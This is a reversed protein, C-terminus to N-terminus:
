LWHPQIQIWDRPTDLIFEEGSVNLRPFAVLASTSLLAAVYSFTSSSAVIKNAGTMLVMVEAPDFEPNDDIVLFNKFKSLDIFEHIKSNDNSFFVICDKEVSVDLAELARDYYERTLVGHLSPNEMYDGFRLHIAIYNHGALRNRYYSLKESNSELTLQRVSRPLSHFYHFTAFWGTVEVTSFKRQNLVLFNELGQIDERNEGHQVLIFNKKLLQSLKRFIRLTFGWPHYITYKRIKLNKQPEVFSRLDYKGNTHKSDIGSLDFIIKQNLVQSIFLAGFYQLLQNGLGGVARIRIQM